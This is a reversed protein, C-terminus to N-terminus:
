RQASEPEPPRRLRRYLVIHGLWASPVLIMPLWVFPFGAIFVNAPDGQILRFPTPAALLSTAVTVVLVSAMTLNWAQLTRRDLREVFPILLLATVGPVMDWNTGTWTLTPPAIGQEVAEHLAFEVAIRFAQFGVLLRLPLDGLRQTWPQRAAWALFALMGVFLLLMRPPSWADLFGSVSLAATAISWLLLGFFARRAVGPGSTRGVAWVFAASVLGPLVAFTWFLAPSPAPLADLVPLAERSISPRRSFFYRLPSRVESHPKRHFIRM